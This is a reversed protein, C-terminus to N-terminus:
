ATSYAIYFFHRHAREDGECKYALYAKGSWKIFKIKVLEIKEPYCYSQM